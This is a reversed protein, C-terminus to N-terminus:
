EWGLETRLQKTQEKDRLPIEKENPNKRVQIPVDEIKLLNFIQKGEHIYLNSDINKFPMSSIDMKLYSAKYYPYLTTWLKEYTFSNQLSHLEAIGFGNQILAFSNGQPMCGIKNAVSEIVLVQNYFRNGSIKQMLREQDQSLNLSNYVDKLVGNVLQDKEFLTNLRYIDVQKDLNESLWESHNKIYMDKFWTALDGKIIDNYYSEEGSAYSLNFGYTRTLLTLIEKFYAIDKFKYSEALMSYYLMEANPKGELEELKKLDSKLKLYSAQEKPFNYIIERSLTDRYTQSYGGFSLFLVSYFIIFHLKM